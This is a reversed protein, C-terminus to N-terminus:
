LFRARRKIVLAIPLGVCVMHIAIGIAIGSVTRRGLPPTRSLPVVIWTMMLWVFVGYLPGVVFAPATVLRAIRRSALYFIAAWTTAIFFHFLLGLAPIIPSGQYAASGLAGSAVFVWVRLPDKGTAAFFHTMAATADLAGAALGAILITAAARREMADSNLQDLDCPIESVGTM